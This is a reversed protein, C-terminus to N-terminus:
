VCLPIDSASEVRCVCLSLQVFEPFIPPTRSSDLGQLCIASPRSMFKTLGWLNVLPYIRLVSQHIVHSEM